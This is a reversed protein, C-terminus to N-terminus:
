QQSRRNTEVNSTPHGPRLEVVEADTAVAGLARAVSVRHHGDRVFHTEGIRYVSIPPLSAGRTAALWMRTWRERTWRPPRFCHDFATAKSREVTGVISGVPIERVGLDRREAIAAWGQDEALFRLGQEERRSPHLRGRLADRRRERTLRRFSREASQMGAAPDPWLRDVALVVAAFGVIVAAAGGLALLAVGTAVTLALLLPRDLGELGLFRSQTHSHSCTTM